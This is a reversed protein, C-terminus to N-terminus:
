QPTCLYFVSNQWEMHAVMFGANKIHATLETPSYLAHSHNDTNPTSLFLNRCTHRRLRNLFPIIDDKPVHEIVEICFVFDFKEDSDWELLGTHFFELDSKTHPHTSCLEKMYDIADEQPDIGVYRGVCRADFMWQLGYGVGCGVDLIHAPRGELLLIPAKYMLVHSREYDNWNRSTALRLQGKDPIMEPGPVYARQEQAM